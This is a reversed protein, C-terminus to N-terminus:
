LFTLIYLLHNYLWDIPEEKTIGYALLTSYETHQTKPDPNYLGYKNNKNNVDSEEAHKRKLGSSTVTLKSENESTQNDANLNAVSTPIQM